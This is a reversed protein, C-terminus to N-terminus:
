NAANGHFSMAPRLSSPDRVDGIFFKLRPDNLSQRMSDQKNEDRSLVRIENIPLRLLKKVLAKGFSGTGGTVLVVSNEFTYQM